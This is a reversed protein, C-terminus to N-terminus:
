VPNGSFAYGKIIEKKNALRQRDRKREEFLSNRRPAQNPNPQEGVRAPAPMSNEGGRPDYSNKIGNRPFPVITSSSPTKHESLHTTVLETSTKIALLPNSRVSAAHKQESSIHNVNQNTLTTQQNSPTTVYIIQSNHTKSYHDVIEERHQQRADDSAFYRNSKDILENKEDHTNNITPTDLNVIETTPTESYDDPLVQTRLPQTIHEFDSDQEVFLEPHKDMFVTVLAWRINFAQNYIFQSLLALLALFNVWVNQPDVKAVEEFFHVVSVWYICGTAFSDEGGILLSLTYENQDEPRLNELGRKIKPHPYLRDQVSSISNVANTTFVTLTSVFALIDAASGTLGILKFLNSTTFYAFLPTSCINIFVCAVTYRFQWAQARKEAASINPDTIWNAAREICDASNRFNFSINSAFSSKVALIGFAIVFINTLATIDETGNGLDDGSILTMYLLLYKLCYWMLESFNVGGLYGNASAFLASVFASGTLSYQIVARVNEQTSSRNILLLNFRLLEATDLIHIFRKSQDILHYDILQLQDPHASAKRWRYLSIGNHQAYLAAAQYGLELNHELATLYLEFAPQTQCYQKLAQETQLLELQQSLQPYKIRAALLHEWKSSNLEKTEFAQQIEEALKERAAPTSCLGSLCNALYERNTRLAIFGDDSYPDLIKESFQIETNDPLKGRLTLNIKKKTVISESRHPITEPVRTRHRPITKLSLSLSVSSEYTELDDLDDLYDISAEKEEKPDHEPPVCLAWLIRGRNRGNVYASCLLVISTLLAVLWTPTIINWVKKLHWFIKEVGFGAQGLASSFKGFILIYAVVIWLRRKTQYPLPM